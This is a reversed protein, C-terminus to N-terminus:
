YNKYILRISKSDITHNECPKGTFGWFHCLNTGDCAYLSVGFDPCDECEAIIFGEKNGDYICSSISSHTTWDDQSFFIIKSKLWELEELPNNVSCFACKNEETKKEKECGALCMLGALAVAMMPPFKKSKM